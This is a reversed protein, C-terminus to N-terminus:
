GQSSRLAWRQPTNRALIEGEALLIIRRSFANPTNSRGRSRFFAPDQIWFRGVMRWICCASMRSLYPRQGMEIVEKKKICESALTLGPALHYLPKIKQALSLGGEVTPESGQRAPSGKRVLDRRLRTQLTEKM